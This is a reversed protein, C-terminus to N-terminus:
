STIQEDSEDGDWGATSSGSSHVYGRVTALDKDSEGQVHGWGVTGWGKISAEDDDGLNEPHMVKWGM